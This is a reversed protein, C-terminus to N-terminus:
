HDVAVWVLIMLCIPTVLVCVGCIIIAAGVLLRGGIWILKEAIKLRALRKSVSSFLRM